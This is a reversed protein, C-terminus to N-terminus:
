GRVDIRYWIKPGEATERVYIIAKQRSALRRLSVWIRDEDPLFELPRVAGAELMRRHTEACVAKLDGASSRLSRLVWRDLTSNGLWYPLM